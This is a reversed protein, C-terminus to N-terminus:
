NGNEFEKKLEDNQNLEKSSLYRLRNCMLCEIRVGKLRNVSKITQKTTLKCKSCFIDYLDLNM